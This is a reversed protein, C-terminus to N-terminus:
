HQFGLLNWADLFWVFAVVAVAVLSYHIRAVLGWYRRFWALLAMVVLLGALFLM